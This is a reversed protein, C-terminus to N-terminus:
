QPEQSKLRDNQYRRNKLMNVYHLALRNNYNEYSKQAWGIAEDLNGNIENIIAMNYYARGAIRRHPNTTEKQWLEAAGDWNGTRAKRKSIKFAYTGKIFYDRTVTIWYPLLRQAYLHGVANATQKVAEKRGILAEAAGAISSRNGSFSLTHALSYEDVIIRNHPDYIRWGTKVTTQMNVQQEMSAVSNLLNGPNQPISIPNVKLDTDFLELVVVADINNTRCITEVQEWSLPAPFMGPAPSKLDLGQLILVQDFRTNQMLADKVGRVCEASGESIMEPGEASIIEHLMTLTKNAGSPISSNIIGIRKVYFPITVPAPDLVKIFVQNTKCAALSLIVLLLPIAKKM